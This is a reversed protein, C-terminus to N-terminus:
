RPGGRLRALYLDFAVDIPVHVIRQDHDIWGYRGLWVEASRHMDIGQAEVSFPRTEIANVVAPVGQRQEAPASPDGGVVDTRWVLIGHAILAGIAIAV